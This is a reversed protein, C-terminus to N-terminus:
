PLWPALVGAPLRIQFLERFLFFLVLSVGVSGVALWLPRREGYIASTGGSNM